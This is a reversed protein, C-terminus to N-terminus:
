RKWSKDWADRLKRAGYNGRQCFACGCPQRGHSQPYYRWGVVQPLKRHRHIESPLIRRKVIVEFGEAPENTMIVAAAEAATMDRHAQNYHGVSVIEDDDIRFYVGVIPGSCGRKLERLWQHSVYFSRTVPMAFIGHEGNALKRLRGIGNRLITKLRSEPTLHVFMAM